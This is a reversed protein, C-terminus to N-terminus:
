ARPGVPTGEESDAVPAHLRHDGDGREINRLSEWECYIKLAQYVISASLRYTAYRLWRAADADSHGHFAAANRQLSKLLDHTWPGLVGLYSFVVPYFKCHFHKQLDFNLVAPQYTRAKEREGVVLPREACAMSKHQKRATKSYVDTGRTDIMIEARMLNMVYDDAKQPRRSVPLSEVGDSTLPLTAWQKAARRAQEPVQVYPDPLDAVMKNTFLADGRRSHVTTSSSNPTLITAGDLEASSAGEGATPSPPIRM